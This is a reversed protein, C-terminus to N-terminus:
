GRSWCELCKETDVRTGNNDGINNHFHDNIIMTMIKNDREDDSTPFYYIIEVVM